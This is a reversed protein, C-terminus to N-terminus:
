EKSSLLLTELNPDAAIEAADFPLRIWEGRAYLETMDAYHPSDAEPSQSYTLIARPDLNGAEDWSVVQMFSNGHRIPSYGVGPQLDAIIMSWMGAWGEGGPVPVRDGNRQAFQIDGLRADLPIGAEELTIQAGALSKRLADHVAVSDVAIGRPTNVPDAPDFPTSYLGDIDRATRWFERWVHGGRSGVAMRRDWNGLAQCGPSIDINGDDLAVPALPPTCIKLVDDLLLEAGFNRHSGLMKQMDDPGISGDTAAESIFNLGARTRLSRSTREDGIIPSYGELPANPNSLWYSDNSNAVFDERVLRPMEEPPLAGSVYSRHDQRWECAESAGNLVVVRSPVDAVTVRCHDLLDADVNPTVSIDAYLAKGHRDAAITNTWSVGQQSIAAEVEDVSTAKNLADYTSSAQGNNLNVDRVAYAKETNWPLSESEVIPGYHSFYVTQQVTVPTGTESQTVVPVTVQEIPRYGDGYRYQMPDDPHLQLEYFTSRLATSVTHSWAIDRNFGISVRSTTLLSVGMVDLEGPITTHILHFRSSGHWPYHPNGFLLGRGSDTLERGLAVANSGYGAPESFDTRVASALGKEVGEHVGENVPPAAHAMEKQVRGIGYRIGVGINLRAVDLETMSRIWPAGRCSAPLQDQHDALYRNFGAVYGRTFEASQGSQGDMFGNLKENSLIANHFTDSELNGDAAGFYRSQEGNVMVLDRAIVCVADRATAYAFGYGLGKWDDAQVHPIGFSTWHVTAQYEPDTLAAPDPKRTPEPSCGSALLVSSFLLASLLASLFTYPYAGAGVARNM